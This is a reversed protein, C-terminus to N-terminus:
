SVSCKVTRVPKLMSVSRPLPTLKMSLSSVHPTKEPWDSFTESWVLVRDCKDTMSESTSLFGSVEGLYKQVFESGVVRIFAAKTANAVAKVLM